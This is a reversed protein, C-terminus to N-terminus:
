KKPRWVILSHGEVFYSGYSIRQKKLIEIKGEKELKELHPLFGKLYKRKRFYKISLNDVLNETNLLEDIPEMNICVIPNKQIIFDIFEEFNEGVQELAAVTFFGSNEPVEITYDPKFFDFNHPIIDKGFKTNIYNIIEQSKKTWDLGHLIFDRYMSLRLLHYGPGCGFEFVSQCDKLYENLISDVLCIHLKYDLSETKSKIFDGKWRLINYKSHYFPILSEYSETKMFADLNQNWGKEWENLRHEGSFTLDKDLTKLINLIVEDRELKELETYELQFEDIMQAVKPNVEFDLLSEIDNKKIKFDM